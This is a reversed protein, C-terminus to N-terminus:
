RASPHRELSALHALYEKRHAPKVGRRGSPKSTPYGKSECWAYLGNNFEVQKQYASKPKPVEDAPRAAKVYPSVARHFAAFHEDTLDVRLWEGDHGFVLVHQAEIRQGEQAHLDDTLVVVTEEAM